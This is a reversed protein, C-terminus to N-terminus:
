VQAAVLRSPCVTDLGMSRSMLHLNKTIGITVKNVQRQKFWDYKRESGYVIKENDRQRGRETQRAIERYRQIERERERERM